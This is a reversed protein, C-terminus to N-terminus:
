PNRRLRQEGRRKQYSQLLPVALWLAAAIAITALCELTLGLLHIRHGASRNYGGRADGESFEYELYEPRSPQPPAWVWHRGSPRYFTHIRHTVTKLSTRHLMWRDVRELWPPFLLMGAILMLTVVAILKTM